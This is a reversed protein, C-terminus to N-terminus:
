SSTVERLARRLQDFDVPKVLHSSFGAQRSRFLDDEMGYGSLAVGPLGPQIGRLKILLEVGTGDPLGLDSIVVDFLGAETAACAAAISSATTVHHGARTLLRSLVALTPEHDEVVLLRMSSIAKSRADDHSGTAKESLLPTAGTAQEVARPLEVIFTAGLGLGASTAQITGGHLDVIARAIALGLGLGGFHHDNERGAQEFPQFISEVAEPKLGIGTDSVEIRLRGDTEDRTRISVRGGTPTFKIANRLLNWFVQQIRSPDGILSTRRAALDVRLTVPKSQAEDRVIEIALGILSHVDCMEERLQLKGKSIATLDLLDDILRAELAINREIMGLDARADAPLRSDERLATAIMLVPTLPTRLEHSLAALFSDKARSAVEAREKAALLAAEGARRELNTAIADAIPALDGLVADTLARRSFLALVGVLIGNAILPYGAFSKMGERRAWEPDSMNPDHAVDNTLLARRDRAIRGIKYKGVPVTAHAGDLHTYLGASARLLLTTGAPDITWVRAFAADLHNVLFRCCGKLSADTDATSALLAAVDARLTALCAREALAAESAKRQSIDRIFGVFMKQETGPLPNISFEVPFEAGDRRVASLEIRRGLVPGEGTARMHELGRCHSERLRQPIIFESLTEGLVEKCSWGFIRQAASNWGAIKGELTMLIVADLATEIIAQARAESERLEREIGSRAVEARNAEAVGRESKRHIGDANLTVGLPVDEGSETM